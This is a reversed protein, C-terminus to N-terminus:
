REVVEAKQRLLEKGNGTHNTMEREKKQTKEM